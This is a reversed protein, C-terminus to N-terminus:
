LARSTKDRSTSVSGCEPELILSMTEQRGARWSDPRRKREERDRFAFMTVMGHVSRLNMDRIIKVGPQTCAATKTGLDGTSHALTSIYIYDNKEEELM